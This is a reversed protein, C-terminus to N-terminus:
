FQGGGGGLRSPSVWGGGGGGLGLRLGAGLMVEFRTTDGDSVNHRWGLSM